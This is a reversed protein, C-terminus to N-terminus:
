SDTKPEKPAETATKAPAEEPLPEALGLERLPDLDGTAVCHQVYDAFTKPDKLINRVATPLEEWAQEVQYATVMQDQLDGKDEINLYQPQGTTNLEGTKLFKALIVNIDADKAFQQQTRSADKCALGTSHSEADRDHNWPTKWFPGPQQATSYTNENIIEGDATHTKM